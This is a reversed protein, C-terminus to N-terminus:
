CLVNNDLKYGQKSVYNIIKEDIPKELVKNIIFLLCIITIIIILVKIYKKM